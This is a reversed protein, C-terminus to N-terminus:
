GVAAFGVVVGSVGSGTMALAGQRGVAAL